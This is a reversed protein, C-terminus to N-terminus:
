ITNWKELTSVEGYNGPQTKGNHDKQIQQEKEKFHQMVKDLETAVFGGGPPTSISLFSELLNLLRSCLASKNNKNHSHNANINWHILNGDRQLREM